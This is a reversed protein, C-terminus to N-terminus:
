KFQVEGRGSSQISTKNPGDTTNRLAAVEIKAGTFRCGHQQQLVDIPKTTMVPIMRSLYYFLDSGMM